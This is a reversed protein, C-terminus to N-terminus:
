RLAMRRTGNPLRGRAVLDSAPISDRGCSLYLLKLALNVSKTQISFQATGWDLQALFTWCIFPYLM